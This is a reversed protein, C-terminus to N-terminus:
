TKGLIRRLMRGAWPVLPGLVVMVCLVYAMPRRMMVKPYTAWGFLYTKRALTPCQGRMLQWFPLHLCTSDIFAKIVGDRPVHIVALDAPKYALTYLYRDMALTIAAHQVQLAQQNHGHVRYAFLPQHVYLVCPNQWLVKHGFYADPTVSHCSAYGEVADYLARSYAMTCFAGPATLTTLVARLVAHGSLADVANPVALVANPGVDTGLGDHTITNQNNRVDQHCGLLTHVVDPMAPGVRLLRGDADIVNTAAYLVLCTRRTGQGEGNGYKMICAAYTELAHPLMLDDSSLVLLFEHRAERTVRDLNHAFGVNYRHRILRIKDSHFSTVVEVSDDTSANDAVIIEYHPYTQALVSELTARLYRGYNYNPICISFTPLVM